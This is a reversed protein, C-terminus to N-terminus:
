QWHKKQAAYRNGMFGLFLLLAIASETEPVPVSTQNVKAEILTVATPQDFSRELSGDVSVTISEQPGEFDDAYSNLSLTLNDSKKSYIFDNTGPTTLNGSVVFFDYINTQENTDVLFFGLDGTASASEVTPEDVSTSLNFDATFDFAFSQNAEVFFNGVIQAQSEALGSYNSGEGVVASLTSNFASPPEVVFLAEAEAVAVASSDPEAAAFTNASTSALTDLPSSSFNSFEVTAESLALSAAQSPSTIIGVTAFEALVTGIVLRSVFLSCRNAFRSKKEM